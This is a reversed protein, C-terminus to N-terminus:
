PRLGFMAFAARKCRRENAERRKFNRMFADIKAQKAAAKKQAKVSTTKIM